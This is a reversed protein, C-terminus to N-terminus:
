RRGGRMGKNLMGRSAMVQMARQVGNLKSGKGGMMPFSPFGEDNDEDEDEDEEWGEADEDEVEDDEDTVDEDLLDAQADKMLEVMKRLKAEKKILRDLVADESEGNGEGGEMAAELEEIEDELKSEGRKLEKMFTSEDVVSPGQPRNLGKEAKRKLASAVSAPVTASPTLHFTPQPYGPAPDYRHLFTIPTQNLETPLTRHGADPAGTTITQAVHKALQRVTPHYHQMHLSLEWLNTAYPNCLEPDDIFPKYLGTGLREESDLLQQLKPNKQL